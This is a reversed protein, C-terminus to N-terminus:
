KRNFLAIAGVVTGLALATWGIFKVLPKKYWETPEEETAVTNGFIKKVVEKFSGSSRDYNNYEVIGTKGAGFDANAFQANWDSPLTGQTTLQVTLGAPWTNEYLAIVSPSFVDGLAALDEHDLFYLAPDQQSKRALIMRKVPDDSSQAEYLVQASDTGAAITLIHITKKITSM